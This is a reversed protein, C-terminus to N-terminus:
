DWPPCVASGRGSILCVHAGNAAPSVALATEALRASSGAGSRVGEVLVVGRASAGSKKAATGAQAAKRRCKAKLRRVADAGFGGSVWRVEFVYRRGGREAALDATKGASRALPRIGSFGESELFVAARLEALAAELRAPTTDNKDFGTLFLAEEATCGFLGAAAQLLLRLERGFGEPDKRAAARFEKGAARLCGSVAPPLGAFARPVAPM